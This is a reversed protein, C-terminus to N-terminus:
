PMLRCSGTCRPRKCNLCAAIQEPGDIGHTAKQRSANGIGNRNGKPAGPPVFVGIARRWRAVTQHTVRYRRALERSPEMAHAAFDAPVARRVGM